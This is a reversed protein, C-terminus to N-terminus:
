LLLYSSFRTSFRDIFVLGIKQSNFFILVNIHPTRRKRKHLIIAHVLINSMRLMVGLKMKLLRRLKVIAKNRLTFEFGSTIKLGFRYLGYACMASHRLEFIGLVILDRFSTVAFEVVGCIDLYRFIFKFVLSFRKRLLFWRWIVNLIGIELLFYLVYCFHISEHCCRISRQAWKAVLIGSSVVRVRIIDM